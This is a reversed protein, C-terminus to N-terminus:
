VRDVIMAIGMGGGICLAALGRAANKEEMAYLLTVFVRAGSCGIPHGLAIAGGHINIADMRDELKLDRVVALSQSAFAENLEFIDIDGLSCGAKEAARRSSPAPGMGMLSPDVGASAYSVIKALPKLGLEDVKEKTALVVAAAGDNIGSANGATVTGGDKKFAPTLKALAEATTGARPHEDTDIVMPDGKRQPISIPAIQSKFAGSEIAECALAQSRAAFADQDQRSIGYKEAINEATIGMHYGNFIEFLGDQIMTDVISGQGMRYGWRAKPLAFPAASMNEMGGAVVIDADGCQIAQAGLAVAKLGSGCVKNITFAPNEKPIGAHMASQRAPNQGLAATLVCGMITEDVQEPQVGARQMAEVIAVRGLEVAPTDKLGGGFRGVATRVASAIYVDKIM